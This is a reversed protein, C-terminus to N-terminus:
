DQDLISISRDVQTLYCDLTVHQSNKSRIAITTFYGQPKETRRIFESLLWGCTHPSDVGDKWQITVTETVIDKDLVEYRCILNGCIFSKGEETIIKFLLM